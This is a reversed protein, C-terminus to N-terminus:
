GPGRSFLKRPVLGRQARALITSRQGAWSQAWQRGSDNSACASSGVLAQRGNRLNRNHCALARSGADGERTSSTVAKQCQGMKVLRGQEHPRGHNHDRPYTVMALRSLTPAGLLRSVGAKEKKAKKTRPISQHHIRARLALATKTEHQDGIRGRQSAARFSRRRSATVGQTSSWRQDSRQKSEYAVVNSPQTTDGHAREGPLDPARDGPKASGAAPPPPTGSQGYV